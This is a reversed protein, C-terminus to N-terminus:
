HLRVHRYLQCFIKLSVLGLVSLFLGPLHSHIQFLLELVFPTLGGFIACGLAYYFLVGQTRDEKQFVLFMLVASTTAYMGLLVALISYGLATFPIVGTTCAWLCPFSLLAAGWFTILTVKYLSQSSSSCKEGTIWATLATIALGGLSLSYVGLESINFRMCFPNIFAHLTYSAIGLHAGLFCVFLSPYLNKRSIEWLSKKPLIQAEMNQPSRRIWRAVFFLLSGLLFPLRWANPDQTTSVWAGMLMALWVGLAGFASLAGSTSVKQSQPVSEMAFLKAGMAEGSISIGQLLRLFILCAPAWAGIAQYSPLLAIGLSPFAMWIMSTKLLGSTGHSRAYKGWGWAGLPAVLFTLAFSLFGLLEGWNLAPFFIPMLHPLMAAYLVYDYLELANGIGAIWLIKTYNKQNMIWLTGNQDDFVTKM